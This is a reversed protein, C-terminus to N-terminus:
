TNAATVTDFWANDIEYSRQVYLVAEAAARNGKVLTRAAAGVGLHDLHRVVPLLDGSMKPTLQGIRQGDIRVEIVTRTSRPLHEVLEHLTAYVFQEGEAGAYPALADVHKEEGTVQIANGSPLLEHAGGPPLNGPVLLHPEALDLQVSARFRPVEVLNGRRDSEYDSHIGGWVRANVQGVLRAKDLAQLVKTYRAADERALFGVQHGGIHVAIANRDHRNRPEPVLLASTKLEVDQGQKVKGVVERLAETYHSEGAVQMGCWGRQGWLEFVTAGATAESATASVNAARRSGRSVEQKQGAKPTTQPESLNLHPSPRTVPSAAPALSTDPTTPTADMQSTVPM